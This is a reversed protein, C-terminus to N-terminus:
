EIARGFGLFAMVLGFIVGFGAMFQLGAKAAIHLADPEPISYAVIVMVFISATALAVGFITLLIHELLFM